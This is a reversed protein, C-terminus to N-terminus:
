RERILQSAAVSHWAAADSFVRHLLRRFNTFMNLAAIDQEAFFGADSTEKKNRNLAAVTVGEALGCLYVLDVHYRSPTVNIRECLIVYPTCLVTVDDEACALAQDPQDLLRVELGTEEAVERRVADDPTEHALIHGGPYLWVGLKRHEVLLIRADPTLVLGSATFVKPIDAQPRPISPDGM